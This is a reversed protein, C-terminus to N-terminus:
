HGYGYVYIPLNVLEFHQCGKEVVDKIFVYAHVLRLTKEFWNFAVKNAFKM